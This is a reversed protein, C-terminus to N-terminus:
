GVIGKAKLDEILTGVVDALVLVADRINEVEGQTPTASITGAADDADLTRTTTENNITYANTVADLTALTGFFLKEFKRNLTKSEFGDMAMPNEIVVETGNEIPAQTVPDSPRRCTLAPIVLLPSPIACAPSTSPTTPTTPALAPRMAQPDHDTM